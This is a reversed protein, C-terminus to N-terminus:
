RYIIPASSSPLGYVTVCSPRKVNVGVNNVTVPKLTVATIALACASVVALRSFIKKM